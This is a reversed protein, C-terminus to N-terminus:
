VKRFFNWIVDDPFPAEICVEEKKVPHEFCIRFAHLHIGGNENSRNYGYKLDGKVPCGIKSLQCRIQHHRGTILIIELLHYNDSSALFRYRLEARKYGPKDADLAYSKNQTENKKLYHILTDNNGEPLERVIARYIKAPHNMKFQLNMRALAKSTRAFLIVGSVPRDIRHILGLFVDGPKNYRVRIYERVEDLLTMDGTIDGQVIEGPLKNVAILHNDEFLIRESVPIHM